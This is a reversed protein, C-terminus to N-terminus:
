TGRVGRSVVIALPGDGSRESTVVVGAERGLTMARPLLREGFRLGCVVVRRAGYSAVLGIGGHISTLESELLSPRATRFRRM